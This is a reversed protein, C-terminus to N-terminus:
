SIVFYKKKYLYHWLIVLKKVLINWGRNTLGVALNRTLTGVGGIFNPPYEGSIIILNHNKMFIARREAFSVLADHFM